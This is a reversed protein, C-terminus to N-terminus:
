TVGFFTTYPYISALMCINMLTVYAALPYLCLAFGMGGRILLLGIRLVGLPMGPM